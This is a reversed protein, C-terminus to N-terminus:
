QVTTLYMANFCVQRMSITKLDECTSAERLPVSALMHRVTNCDYEFDPSFLSCNFDKLNLGFEVLFAEDRCVTRNPENTIVSCVLPDGRRRAEKILFLNKCRDVLDNQQLSNCASIESANSAVANFVKETCDLRNMLVGDLQQCYAPDLNQMALNLAINNRCVIRYNAGDIVLNAYADCAALDGGTITEAVAQQKMERAEKTLPELPSLVRRWGPLVLYVVAILIVTLAGAAIAIFAKTEPNYKNNDVGFVRLWM